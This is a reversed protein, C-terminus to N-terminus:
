FIRGIEDKDARTRARVALELDLVALVGLLSDLRTNEGREIQSITAQRLGARGALDTQTLGLTKRRRRIAAGLQKPTRILSDDM